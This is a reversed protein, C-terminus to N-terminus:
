QTVTVSLSSVQSSASLATATITLPYTGPAMTASPTLILVSVVDGGGLTKPVFEANIGAPVGTAGLEITGTYNSRTVNINVSYPQGREVSFTKPSLEMSFSGESSPGSGGGDDGGCAALAVLTIALGRRMRAPMGNTTAVTM